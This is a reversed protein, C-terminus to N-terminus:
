CFYAIQGMFWNNPLPKPWFPDVEFKPAVHGKAKGGGAHVQNFIPDLIGLTFVFVVIVLGCFVGRISKM